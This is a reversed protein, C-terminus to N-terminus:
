HSEDKNTPFVIRHDPLYVSLSKAAMRQCPIRAQFVLLTADQPSALHHTDFPKPLSGRVAADDPTWSKKFCDRLLNQRNQQLLLLAELWLRVCDFLLRVKKANWHFFILQLCFRGYHKQQRQISRHTCHRRPPIKRFSFSQTAWSSWVFHSLLLSLLPCDSSILFVLLCSFHIQFDLLLYKFCHNQPM